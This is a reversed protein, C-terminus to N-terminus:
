LITMAAMMGLALGANIALVLKVLGITERLLQVVLWRFTLVWM